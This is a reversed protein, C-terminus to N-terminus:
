FKLPYANSLNVFATVRVMFYKNSIFHSIFRTGPVLCHASTKITLPTTAPITAGPGSPGSTGGRAVLCTACKKVGRLTDGERDLLRYKKNLGNLIPIGFQMM